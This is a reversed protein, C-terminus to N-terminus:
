GISDFCKVQNEKPIYHSMLRELAAQNPAWTRMENCVSCRIDTASEIVAIVDVESPDVAQSDVANRYLILRDAGQSIRQVIGLGHGNKCKWILLEDAM